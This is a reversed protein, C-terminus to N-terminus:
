QHCDICQLKNLKYLVEKKGNVVKSTHCDNCAIEAHKGELPFRTTNHDFNEPIWSTTVHCRVCDTVGNIAFKDEHINEHCSVCQTDLNIFKQKAVSKNKSENSFHCERCDVEKHKGDLQM